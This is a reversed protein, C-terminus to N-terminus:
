RGAKRTTVTTHSEDWQAQLDPPLAAALGDDEDADDLTVHRLGYETMMYFSSIGSPGYRSKETYLVRLEDVDIVAGSASDTVGKEIGDEKTLMLSIDGAHQLRMMGAMEGEKTVHNIVIFPAQYLAAFFKFGSVIEVAKDAETTFGAISDLVIGGPRRAELIEELVADGMKELPVIRIRDARCGLRLARNKIQGSSEEACLYLAERGTGLALANSWQLAVTSKGAGPEGGLLVVADCPVGPPSGFNADWPGTLIRTVEYEPVDSLLITGDKETGQTLSHERLGVLAVWAGCKVCRTKGRKMPFACRTCVQGNVLNSM